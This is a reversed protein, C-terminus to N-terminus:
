YKNTLKSIHENERRDVTRFVEPLVDGVGGELRHLKEESSRDVHELIQFGDGRGEAM